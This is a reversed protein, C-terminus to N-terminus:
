KIKKNIKFLLFIISFFSILLLYKYHDYFFIITKEEKELEIILNENIITKKGNKIEWKDFFNFPFILYIKHKSLNILNYNGNSNREIVVNEDFNVNNFCNENFFKNLCNKLIHFNGENLSLLKKKNYFIYLYINEIKLEQILKLNIYKKNEPEFYKNLSIFYQINNLYIPLNNTLKNFKSPANVVSFGIDTLDTVGYINYNKLLGSLIKERLDNDVYLRNLDLNKIQFNIHIKKKNNIFNIDSLNTKILTQFFILFFPMILITVIFYNLFNIKTKKLLLILSIISLIIILDRYYILGPIFYLYKLFHMKFNLFDMISLNFYIIILIILNFFINIYNRRLSFYILSILPIFYILVLYLYVTEFHINEFTQIIATYNLNSFGAHAIRNEFGEAINIKLYVLYYISSFFIILFNKILFILKINKNFFFIIFIILFFGLCYQLVLGPHGMYLSIIITLSFKYFDKNKKKIFYKFIYYINLMLMTYSFLVSFWWNSLYHLNPLYTLFFLFIFLLYNKKELLKLIKIFYFLQLCLHFFFYIIIYFEKNINLFINLPHIFSGAGNPILIGLNIKDSFFFTLDQFILKSSLIGLDIEESNFFNNKNYLSIYLNIFTFLLVIFTKTINKKIM